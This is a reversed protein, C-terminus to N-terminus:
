SRRPRQKTRGSVDDAGRDSRGVSRWFGAHHRSTSTNSEHRKVDEARVNKERIGTKPVRSLNHRRLHSILMKSVYILYTVIGIEPSDRFTVYRSIGQDRFRSSIHM